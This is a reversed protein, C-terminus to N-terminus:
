EDMNDIKSCLRYSTSLSVESLHVTKAFIKTNFSIGNSILYYMLVGAARSQPPLKKLEPFKNKKNMIKKCLAILSTYADDRLGVKKAFDVIIDEAEIEIPIPKYSTRPWAFQTLARSVDAKPLKVIEAIDATDKKVGLEVYANYVCFFKKATRISSDRTGNTGELNHCIEIARKKVEEDIELKRLDDIISKKTGSDFKIVETM